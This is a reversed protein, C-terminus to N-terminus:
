NAPVLLVPAQLKRVLRPATSAQWFADGGLRGHTCIIVLEANWKAAEGEIEAVPDGRLVKTYTEAGASKAQMELNELYKGVEGSEIDLLAGTALPLIEAVAGGAGSIDGSKPIVSVLELQAKCHIAFPMAAALSADHEPRCDVPVLVRSFCQDRSPMDSHILLVPISAARLIRQGMSGLWVNRVLHNGHTAMIVFDCNFERVHDTLSPAVDRVEEAHVHCEVEAVDALREKAVSDLYKKAEEITTLHRQGHVKSPARTELVHLLTIKSGLYKSFFRAASVAQEASATGDLPLLLHRYERLQM